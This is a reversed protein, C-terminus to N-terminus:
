GDAAWEIKVSFEARKSFGFYLLDYDQYTGKAM